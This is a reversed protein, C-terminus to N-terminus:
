KIWTHNGLLQEVLGDQEQDVGGGAGFLNKLNERRLEAVDRRQRLLERRENKVSHIM